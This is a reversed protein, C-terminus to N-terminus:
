RISTGCGAPCESQEEDSFWSRMCGFHGRHGCSLLCVAIGKVPEECLICGQTSKNCSECYWFGFTSEPNESKKNKSNENVLLKLCHCCYTRFSTDTQGKLKVAEYILSGKKIVDAAVSFLRKRCLIEHYTLIWDMSSYDSVFGKYKKAFLLSLVACTIVDGEEASYECAKRILTEPLWPVELEGNSSEGDSIIAEEDQLHTTWSEGAKEMELVKSLQSVNSRASTKSLARSIRRKHMIDDNDASPMRVPNMELFQRQNNSSVSSVHSSMPSRKEDDFDHKPSGSYSFPVSGNLETSSKRAPAPIPSVLDTFSNPRGRSSVFSRKRMMSEEISIARPKIFKLNDGYTPSEGFNSTSNYSSAAIDLDSNTHDAYEHAPTSGIIKSERKEPVNQFTTKRSRLTDGQEDEWLVSERIVRWTQCDRFRHANAAIISNYNCVSALNMGEPVCLLYNKALFEFVVSDHLPLPLSAHCIYPSKHANQNISPLPQTKPNRYSHSKALSQRLETTSNNLLKLNPHSQANQVSTPLIESKLTSDSKGAGVKRTFSDFDNDNLDYDCSRQSVVSLEGLGSNNWDVAVHPMNDLPHSAKALDTMVFTKDKSCSLLTAGDRPEDSVEYDGVSWEIGTVQASHGEVVYKPIYKRSLNWVQVSTDDNLFSAALDTSFLPNASNNDQQCCWKVKSVANATTLIHDPQKALDPSNGSINWVQIQKDRGGSAVYDLTPHWDISLGPGTHANLKREYQAPSRLDWKKIVGSDFIGVLKTKNHLSFQLDRVADANGSITMVAKSNNKRLDWVKLLGDQSGSLLLSPTHPSFDLANVARAHDRLSHQIRDARMTNFINIGGSMAAAAINSGFQHYGFKIDSIYGGMRNSRNSSSSGVLNSKLLVENEEVKLVQLLKTGGVAVIDPSEHSKAMCLIEGSAHYSLRNKHNDFESFPQTLSSISNHHHSSPSGSPGGPSTSITNGSYINFAFRAFNGSSKRSGLSQHLDMPSSSQGYYSYKSGSSDSM